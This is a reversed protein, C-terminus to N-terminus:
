FNFYQYINITDFIVPNLIRNIVKNNKIKKSKINANYNYVFNIRKQIIIQRFKNALNYTALNILQDLKKKIYKM